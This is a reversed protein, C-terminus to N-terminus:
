DSGALELWEGDHWYWISSAKELFFDEIGDVDARPPEPGGHSARERVREADAVGIERSFGIQGRGVDQLFVSNAITALEAVHGTSNRRYVLISSVREISCLVAADIRGPVMFEGYVVNAPVTALWPQPIVCGRRNLDAVVDASLAPFADPTLRVTEIDATDCNGPVADSASPRDKRRQEQLAATTSMSGAADAEVTTCRGSEAGRRSDDFRSDAHGAQIGAGFAALWGFAPVALTKTM